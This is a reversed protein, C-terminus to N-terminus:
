RIYQIKPGTLNKTVKILAEANAVNFYDSVKMLEGRKSVLIVSCTLCLSEYNAKLKIQSEDFKKLTEKGDYWPAPFVADIFKLRNKYIKRM